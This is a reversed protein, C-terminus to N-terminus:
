FVWDSSNRYWPLNFEMWGTRVEEREHPTLDKGVRSPIRQTARIPQFFTHPERHAHENDVNLRDLMLEVAESWSLDCFSFIERFVGRPNMCQTEHSVHMIDEYGAIKALFDKLLFGQLRGISTLLSGDQFLPAIRADAHAHALRTDELVGTRLMSEAVAAPHRRLLIIKPRFQDIYRPLDPLMVEKVLPRKKSRGIVGWREPHRLMYRPIRPIGQFALSANEQIVSLSRDNTLFWPWWPEVSKGSFLIPEFVPLTERAASLVSFNWTSGSRPLSAILIPRGVSGGLTRILPMRAWSTKAYYLPDARFRRVASLVRQMARKTGCFFAAYSSAAWPTVVDAYM